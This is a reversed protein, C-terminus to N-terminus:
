EDRRTARQDWAMAACATIAILAVEGILLMTGYRNLWDNFPAEPDGFLTAIMVLVTLVFLATAGAAAHFLVGPGRRRETM